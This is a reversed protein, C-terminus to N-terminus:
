WFPTNRFFIVLLVAKSKHLLRASSVSYVNLEWVTSIVPLTLEVHTFRELVVAEHEVGVGVCVDSGSLLPESEPSYPRGVEKTIIDGPTVEPWVM